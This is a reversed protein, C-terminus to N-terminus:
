NQDTYYKQIAKVRVHLWKQFEEEGMGRPVKLIVPMVNDSKEAIILKERDVVFKQVLNRV